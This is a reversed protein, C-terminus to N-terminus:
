VHARGIKQSFFFLDLRDIAGEPCPTADFTPFNASRREILLREETISAYDKRPGIRICTRGKYRVPPLDHPTVEVVLVEGGDGQPHPHSSVKMIPQPLIAGDSRYSAFQQLLQDTIKLRFDKDDEAFGIILYGTLGSGSLDNSFSCIAERFKNTDTVSRTFEVRFTENKAILENIEVTTM